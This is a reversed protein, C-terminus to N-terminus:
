AGIRFGTEDRKEEKGGFKPIGGGPGLAGKGSVEGERPNSIIRFGRDYHFM